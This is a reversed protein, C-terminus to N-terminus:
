NQKTNHKHNFPMVSEISMIKPLSQSNTISLPAQCAATWPTAFLQVRSFLQVASHKHFYAQKQFASNAYMTHM